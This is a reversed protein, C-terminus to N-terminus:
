RMCDVCDVCMRTCWVDSVAWICNHLLHSHSSVMALPSHELTELTTTQVGWCVCLRMWNVCVILVCVWMCWVDSVIWLWHQLHHSHSLVMVLQNHELTELRTTQVDWCVCVCEFLVYDVCYLWCVDACVVCWECDLTLTTLSTLSKLGDGISQAGVDGIKNGTCGLM